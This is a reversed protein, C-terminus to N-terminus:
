LPGDDDSEDYHAAIVVDTELGRQVIYALFAPSKWEGAALTVALSTGACALRCSCRSQLCMLLRVYNTAFM